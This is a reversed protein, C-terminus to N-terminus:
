PDARRHAGARQADALLAEDVFHEVEVTPDTSKVLREFTEVHVPSTHLFAIHRRMPHPAQLPM